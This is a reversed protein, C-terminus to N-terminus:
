SETGVACYVSEVETICLWDTLTTCALTATKRFDTCFVYVCHLCCKSNRFKLGPPGYHLLFARSTLQKFIVSRETKHANIQLVMGFEVWEICVICLNIKINYM